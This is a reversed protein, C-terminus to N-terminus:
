RVIDQLFRDLEIFGNPGIGHTDNTPDVFAQVKRGSRVGGRVLYDLFPDGASVRYCCPDWTNFMMLGGRSGAAVMLDEHRMGAFVEPAFQEPDGLELAGWPADLRQSMPRGGAVSVVATIRPDLAGYTYTTFGGGSRGLMLLSTAPPRTSEIFDVVRKVPMMHLAIVSTAGDDHKPLNFHTSDEATKDEANVGVIQMDMAYVEWGRSLLFDIMDSGIETGAGGHGEHFIAYRGPVPAVPIFRTVRSRSLEGGDFLYTVASIYKTVSGTIPTPLISPRIRDPSGFPDGGPWIAHRLMSRTDAVSPANVPADYVSDANRLLLMKFGDGASYLCDAADIGWDTVPQNRCRLDSANLGHAVVWADAAAQSCFYSQFPMYDPYDCGGRTHPTAFLTDASLVASSRKATVVFQYRVAPVLDAVFSHSRNGVFQENWDAAGTARWKVSYDNNGPLSIWSLLMGGDSPAPVVNIKWPAIVPQATQGRILAPETVDRQCAAIVMLLPLCCKLIVHQGARSLFECRRSNAFVPLRM